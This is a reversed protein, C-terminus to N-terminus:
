SHKFTLVGQGYAKRLQVSAFGKYCRIKYLEARCKRDYVQEPYDEMIHQCTRLRRGKRYFIDAIDLQCLVVIVTSLLVDYGAGPWGHDCVGGQIRPKDLADCRM